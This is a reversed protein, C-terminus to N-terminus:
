CGCGGATRRHLLLSGGHEELLGEVRRELGHLVGLVRQDVFPEAPGAALPTCQLSSQEKHEAVAVVSSEPVAVRDVSFDDTPPLSDFEARPDVKAM